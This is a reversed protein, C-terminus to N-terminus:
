RYGLLPLLLKQCCIEHSGIFKESPVRGGMTHNMGALVEGGTLLSASIFVFSNGNM